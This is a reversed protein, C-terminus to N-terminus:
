SYLTFRIGGGLEVELILRCAVSGSESRFRALASAPAEGGKGGKGWFSEGVKRVNSDDDKAEEEWDAVGIGSKNEGREFKDFGTSRFRLSSSELDDGPKVVPFVGMRDEVAGDCAFSGEKCKSPSEKSIAENQIMSQEFPVFSCRWYKYKNYVMPLSSVRGLQLTADKQFITKFKLRM